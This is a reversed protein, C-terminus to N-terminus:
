SVNEDAVYRVGPARGPMHMADDRCPPRMAESRRANRLRRFEISNPRLFSRAAADYGKTFGQASTYLYPRIKRRSVRRPM